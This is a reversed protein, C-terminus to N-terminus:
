SSIITKRENSRRKTGCQDSRSSFSLINNENQRLIQIMLDMSDKRVSSASTLRIDGKIVKIQIKGERVNPSIRCTKLRNDKEENGLCM